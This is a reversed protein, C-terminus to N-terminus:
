LKAATELATLREKVTEDALRRAEAQWLTFRLEGGIVFVSALGLLVITVQASSRAEPTGVVLAVVGLVPILVSVMVRWGFTFTAPVGGQASEKGLLSGTAGFGLLFALVTALTVCAILILLMLPDALVETTLGQM